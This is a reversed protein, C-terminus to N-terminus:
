KTKLENFRREFDEKLKQAIFNGSFADARAAMAIKASLARAIKGRIKKTSSSISYHQFIVGHKPSKAGGRLHKFLAKTAGIVQITSAPMLALKQLSGAQAVLKAALAPEVLHSLNPCLEKAIANQYTEVRTRLELLSLINGSLARTEELDAISFDAGMSNKARNFISQASKQGAAGAIIEMDPNKRDLVLVLNCYGKVDNMRLEPFYLGYWETLKEYMVNICKDLENAASVTQCLLLDRSSVAKVVAGRARQMYKDRNFM